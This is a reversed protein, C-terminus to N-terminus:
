RGPGFGGGPGRGGGISGAFGSLEERTLVGDQNADARAFIGRLREPLESAALKGDGNADFEMLRSVMDAPGRGGPGRLGGGPGGPGRLGGPGAPGGPGFEPRLEEETLKGDRNRDLTKLSASAKAIEDASLEGDTNLDLARMMPLMRLMGGPGGM